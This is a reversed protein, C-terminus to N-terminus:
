KGDGCEDGRCGKCCCGLFLENRRKEQESWSINYPYDWYPKQVIKFKINKHINYATMQSQVTTKSTCTTDM